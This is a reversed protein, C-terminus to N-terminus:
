QFSFKPMLLGALIILCSLMRVKESWKPHVIFGLFDGFYNEGGLEVLEKM